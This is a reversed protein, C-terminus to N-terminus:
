QGKVVSTLDASTMQQTPPAGNSPHTHENYITYAGTNLLALADGGDSLIISAAQLTITGPSFISVNGVGSVIANGSSDIEVETGTAHTLQVPFPSPTSPVREEQTFTVSVRQGTGNVVHRQPSFGTGVVMQTGDPWVQTTAGSSTLSSWYGSYHSLYELFPDTPSGIADMLASQFAGLWVASNIDGNLLAVVGVNGRGPLAAQNIRVGDAPGYHLVPVHSLMQGDRLLITLTRDDADQAMVQAHALHYICTSHRPDEYSM